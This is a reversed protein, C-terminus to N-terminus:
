WVPFRSHNRKLPLWSWYGVKIAYDCRRATLLRLIGRQFFAADL